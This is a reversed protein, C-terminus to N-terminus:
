RLRQLTDVALMAVRSSTGAGAVEVVALHRGSRALVEGGNRTGDGNYTVMWTATGARTTVHYARGYYWHGSIEHQCASVLRVITHYKRTARSISAQDAVQQIVSFKKKGNIRGTFTGHYMDARNGVIDSLRTEGTCASLGYGGDRGGVRSTVTHKVAFAYAIDVPHLLDDMQVSAQKATQAGTQAVGSAQPSALALSAALAGAGAVALATRKLPTSTSHMM